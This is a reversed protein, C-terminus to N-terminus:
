DKRGKYKILMKIAKNKINNERYIKSENEKKEEKQILLFLILFVIISIFIYILSALYNM